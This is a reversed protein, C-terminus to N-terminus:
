RVRSVAVVEIVRSWGHEGWRRPGGNPRAREGGRCERAGLGTVEEAPLEGAEGCVVGVKVREVWAENAVTSQFGLCLEEFGEPAALLEVPIGLGFRENADFVYSIGAM